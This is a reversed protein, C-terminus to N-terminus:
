PQRADLWSQLMVAAAVKDIVRRRAGARMRASILSREAAVTTLREDYTDVPVALAEALEAAEDLAARGAPGVRGSLSLPLGVVVRDAGLEHVLEAVARHDAARDRGRELVTHPSAVTGSPDSVAVGIRRSGLDLGIVRV